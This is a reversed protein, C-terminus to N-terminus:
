LQGNNPSTPDDEGIEIHAQINQWTTMINDKDIIDLEDYESDYEPDTETFYEVFGEDDDFVGDMVLRWDRHDEGYAPTPNMDMYTDPYGEVEGNHYMQRVTPEAMIWRQMVMPAHQFQWIDVLPQITNTMWMGEVYHNASKLMYGLQEYDFPAIRNYVTEMFQLAPAALSQTFQQVRNQMYDLTQSSPRTFVSADFMQAGGEIIRAM